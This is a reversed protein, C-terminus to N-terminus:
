KSLRGRIGSTPQSFDQALKQLANKDFAKAAEEVLKWTPELMNSPGLNKKLLDASSRLENGVGGLQKLLVDLQKDVAVLADLAAKRVKKAEPSALLAAAKKEAEVKTTWTFLVDEMQAMAVKCVESFAKVREGDLAGAKLNDKKEREDLEKLKKNAAELTTKPNLGDENANIRQILKPVEAPLGGVKVDVVKTLKMVSLTLFLTETNETEGCYKAFDTYLKTDTAVKKMDTM